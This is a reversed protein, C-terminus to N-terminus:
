RWNLNATVAYKCGDIFKGLRLQLEPNSAHSSVIHREATEFREISARLAAVANDVAGQASQLEVFLLPILTDVQSQNMEKKLSLIDNMVSIVLNTENWITEMAESEMVGTPIALGNAFETIALCVRVASSGMRRRTYEEVTPLEETRQFRHEEETMAIFFRLEKLFRKTQDDNYSKSITEGVSRFCTIIPNTSIEALSSSTHGKSLTSQLYQLTRQRFVSAANFDEILSSFEDSDTEDDWVFLWMSLLTGVCLGEWTAYPWWSAGFLASKYSETKRLRKQDKADDFISDLTAQVYTELRDVEPHVAAPWHSVLSQLDPIFVKSGRLTSVVHGRTQSAPPKPEAYEIRDQSQSSVRSSTLPSEM